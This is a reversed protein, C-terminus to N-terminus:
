KLTKEAFFKNKAMIQPAAKMPQPLDELGALGSGESGAAFNIPPVSASMLGETTPFLVLAFL